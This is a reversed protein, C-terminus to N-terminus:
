AVGKAPFLLKEYAAKLLTVDSNRDLWDLGRVFLLERMSGLATTVQVADSTFPWWKDTPTVLWWRLFSDTSRVRNRFFTTLPTDRLVSLRRRFEMLCHVERPEDPVFERSVPECYEPHFVALNVTFKGAMTRVGIQFDVIQICESSRRRFTRTSAEYSFGRSVMEPKILQRIGRELAKAADSAM